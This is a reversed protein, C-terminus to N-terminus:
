LYGGGIKRGSLAVPRDSTRGTEFDVAAPKVIGPKRGAIARATPQCKGQSQGPDSASRRQFRVLPVRAPETTKASPRHLHQGLNAFGLTRLAHRCSVPSAQRLDELFDGALLDEESERRPLHNRVIRIVVPYLRQVLEKAAAEDSNRARTILQFLEDRSM